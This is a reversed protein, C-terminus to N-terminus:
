QVRFNFSLTAVTVGGEGVIKWTLSYSGKESPAVMDVICDYRDGPDVDERFTYTEEKHTKQGSAYQLKFDDRDWTNTGTNEVKWVMDFDQGPSLTVGNQPNQSVLRAQNPGPTPTITAQPTNTPTFTPTPSPTWTAVTFRTATPLPTSSPALTPMILASVTATWTPPLSRQTPTASPLEITPPLEPPPFPNLASSPNILIQAFVLVLGILALLGVVSLIDWISVKM